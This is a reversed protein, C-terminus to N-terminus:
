ELHQTNKWYEKVLKTFLSEPNELLKFPSDYEALVGDTLALVMDSDVVTPIRHAVTVVTCDQFDYRILKQIIADTTSDISATAEDLVLIRSHKLLARGLCFLQRQGVSWNGGEDTVPADLKEPMSQVIDALQCKKLAEWIQHDDHDGLPDLNSRVTGRFLTPEQPIIGLRSRLDRLGITTIDLGDILIRGGAPEVLRFLASILTTKGSGTRGVVGVRQSGEFTCTIGKLVLPAGPRYRIQLNQLEVKGKVPWNPSPRSGEIIAPSESKIKMYQQVREVSVINNALQCIFQIFFVLVGNLTLGYILSLGAFGGSVDDSPLLVMLLASTALIIACLTELRLVLWEYAVFTHFFLRADADVLELNKRQFQSIKEFARITMAGSITESFNNVIPAKTTGNMRMLERASALYYRQLWRVVILLPIVVLLVQYTVVAIIVIVGAIELGVQSVFGFGLPVDIDLLQMDSSIRSIIRGMPTSDFFSMPARFLCVILSRFFNSSARLGLLVSFRSRLFVFIGSMISLSAYVGILSADSTGPDNVRTALWYNAAINALVFIGQCIFGAWWMIWGKAVRVYQLYISWGQDGVEREEQQTLQTAPLIVPVPERERQSGRRSRSQSLAVLMKQTESESRCLMDNVEKKELEVKVENNQHHVTGMADEHANILQKFGRGEELLAYYKGSQAIEGGEMVLILDVAHLFEVQHTVLIVTKEKLAGMVCDKFLIAATHADLASFPDDLLYVDADAYVARALQIRQKQGGSMNIGREGIETQDGFPFQAIDQDLACAKLASRYRTYDLPLGFLINDQITGSQIWATQAVYALRGSVMIQGSVKPIEGMISYLLTSKGSGVAGCVAVRDGQKVDLNISRLTPKVKDGPQWTLTADQMRVAYADDHDREVCNDLEDGNLFRGIRGLSVQVQISVALLEPVLRVPDQIIRFASLATFVVAPTLRHGLLVYVGFTISSILVPTMWFLITGFSRTKNVNSLWHFENERLKMMRAQFQDEWAQLKIIKISNLIETSARIREDQAGMLKVQYRQLARALPINLVITMGVMALGAFTALGLTYFLIVSAIILSLPTTWIQHFYWAFEGLRYCDVSVYNVIEGAAHTARGTSSLRLQKQYITAILGTRLKMGVVRSGAYWHRQLVSELIKCLFLAAVLAYGEYEFLREGSEYRIFLQLILPGFALALTKGLACFANVGMPKWYVAALAWFVSQQKEPNREKQAEWAQLFKAAATQAQLDESLHPVDNMQLPRKKGLALLPDLWTFLLRSLPSANAYPTKLREKTRNQGNLLPETLEGSHRACRETSTQRAGRIAFAFLLCAVPWSAVTLFVKIPNDTMSGKYLKTLSNVAAVTSLLFTFIWWIYAVKKSTNQLRIRLSIAITIWAVGQVLCYIFDEHTAITPAIVYLYVGVVLNALGVIGSLVATVKRWVSTVELPSELGGANSPIRKSMSLFILFIVLCLLHGFCAIVYQIDGLTLAAMTSAMASMTEM